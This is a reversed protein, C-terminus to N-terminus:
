KKFSLKLKIGPMLLMINNIFQIEEIKKLNSHDLGTTGMAVKRRFLTEKEACKVDAELDANKM